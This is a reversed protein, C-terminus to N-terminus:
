IQIHDSLENIDTLFEVERFKKLEAQRCIFFDVVSQGNYKNCTFNSAIFKRALVLGNLIALGNSSYFWNLTRGRANIEPDVDNYQLM